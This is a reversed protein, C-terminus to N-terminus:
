YSYKGKEITTDNEAENLEIPVIEQAVDEYTDAQKEYVIEKDFDDNETGDNEIQDSTETIMEDVLGMEHNVCSGNQDIRPLLISDSTFNDNKMEFDITTDLQTEPVFLEIEESTGNTALSEIVSENANATSSPEGVEEALDDADLVKLAEVIEGSPVLHSDIETTQNGETEIEEVENEVENSNHSSLIEEPQEEDGSKSEEEKLNLDTSLSFVSKLFKNYKICRLRVKFIINVM